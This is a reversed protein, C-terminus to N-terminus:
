KSTFLRMAAELTGIEAFCYHELTRDLVLVYAALGYVERLKSLALAKRREQEDVSILSDPDIVSCCLSDCWLFLEREEVAQEDPWAPYGRLHDLLGKLRLLQCRPLKIAAPNGLGDVWVHSLATYAMGEEYPLVEVLLERSPDEKISLVPFTGHELCRVIQELAPGVFDCKCGRTTHSPAYTSNSIQLNKCEDPDCRSHDTNIDPRSM